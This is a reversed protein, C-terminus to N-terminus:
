DEIAQFWPSVRTFWAHADESYRAWLAKWASGGSPLHGARLEKKIWIWLRVRSAEEVIKPSWFLNVLDAESALSFRDIWATRTFVNADTVVRLPRFGASGAVTATFDAV